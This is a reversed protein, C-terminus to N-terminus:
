NRIRDAKLNTDINFSNPCIQITDCRAKKLWRICFRPRAQQGPEIDLMRQMNSVYLLMDLPLPRRGLRQRKILKVYRKERHLVVGAPLGVQDRRPVVTPAEPM